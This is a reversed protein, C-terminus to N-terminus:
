TGVSIPERTVDREAEADLEPDLDPDPPEGAAPEIRAGHLEPQSKVVEDRLLEWLEHRARAFAPSSQIDEDLRAKPFAVDVVQKVRGPGATMVAVRQGLLVAEDISHTIFVVTTRTEAWIRLLQRQLTERTQADLAAFPEDMLLVDPEYALSRALAVRQKMGGSLQYPYRDAFASLGVLALHERAIAARERKPLGKAELGFEVNALATRWPFLAYQQFVFGRDLGPGSIPRGDLLLEGDSPHDLGGVFNLFTSKGCGSPGVVVLLEGARVELDFGQLAVFESSPSSFRKELGRAVIKATM